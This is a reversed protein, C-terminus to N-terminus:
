KTKLSWTGAASKAIYGVVELKDIGKKKRDTKKSGTLPTGTFPREKYCIV